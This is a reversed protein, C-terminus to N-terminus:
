HIQFKTLFQDTHAISLIANYLVSAGNKDGHCSCIFPGANYVNISIIITVVAKISLDISILCWLLSDLVYLLLQFCPHHHQDDM